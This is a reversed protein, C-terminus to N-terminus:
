AGFYAKLVEEDNEIEAPTGDALKRGEDLVIIRHCIELM